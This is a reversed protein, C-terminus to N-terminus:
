RGEGGRIKKLSENIGADIYGFYYDPTLLGVIAESVERGQADFFKITPVMFVKSDAAFAGETSPKGDFLTLPNSSGAEVERILVKNRYAPDKLLPLLYETKVKHCFHCGPSTYLVLIPVQKQAALKADAKLNRAHPLGDSAVAPAAANLACALM